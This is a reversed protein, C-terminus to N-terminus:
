AAIRKWSIYRHVPKSDDKSGNPGREDQSREGVYGEQDAYQDVEHNDEHASGEDVSKERAAASGVLALCTGPPITAYRLVVDYSKELWSLLERLGAGGAASGGAGCKAWSALRTL